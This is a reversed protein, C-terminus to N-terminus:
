GRKLEALLARAAPAEPGKGAAKVAREALARATPLDGQARASRAAALLLQPNGPARALGRDAARRAERPQEEALWAASLLRLADLDAPRALLVADLEARALSPQGTALRAAGLARRAELDNPDAAVAKQLEPVAEATAGRDLLLSGLAAHAEPAGPARELVARYAAEAEPARGLAELAQGLAVGALPTSSRSVALKELLARAQEARGLRLDTLAYWVAAEAPMRGDRATRELERRAESIQGLKFRAIARQLLVARGEVDATASLAEAYRGRGIHARALLVRAAQDKPALAVARAAAAEARDWARVALHAEAAASALAPSEGLQEAARALEAAAGSPDGAASRLRASAVALRVKLDDPPASGPDGAMAELEARGRPLDLDLLLRAEAAGVVSRPHTPHASLAAGFYGLAGEPDGAALSADGLDSLARLLPPTARTAIELRGRGAALEGRRVLIRGALAQLLPESSPPAALIAAEAPAAEAPSGALLFAAALGGDGAAPLGALRGALARAEADGHETALVAAVQASLSTVEPSARGRRAEALLRGAERLAGVTDRALGARARIAATAALEAQSRARLHLFVGAATAVAIVVVATLILGRHRRHLPPPPEPQSLLRERVEQEFRETIQQTEAEDLEPAPAAKMAMLSQRTAGPIM